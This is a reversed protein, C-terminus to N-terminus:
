FVFSKPYNLWWVEVKLSGSLLPDEIDMKQLLPSIFRVRISLQGLLFDLDLM